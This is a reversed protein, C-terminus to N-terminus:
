DRGADRVRFLLLRSKEGCLMEVASPIVYAPARPSVSDWIASVSCKVSVCSRSCGANLAKSRASFDGRVRLGPRAADSELQIQDVGEPRLM